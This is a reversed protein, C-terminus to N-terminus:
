ISIVLMNKNHITTMWVFLPVRAINRFYWCSAGSINLKFQRGWPPRSFLLFSHAWPLFDSSSWRCPKTGQLYCPWLLFCLSRQCSMTNQLDQLKELLLKKYKILILFIFLLLLYVHSNYLKKFFDNSFKKKKNMFRDTSSIFSTAFFVSM